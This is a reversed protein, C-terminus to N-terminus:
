GSPRRRRVARQRHRFFGNEIMVEISLRPHKALLPAVKPWVIQEAALDSCVIRVMGSPEDGRATVDALGAEIDALAPKVSELLRVGAETAAVRRTTRALLRVGLRAELRQVAQSLASQSMALRGAARTFSEEEAVVAFLALEGLHDRQM